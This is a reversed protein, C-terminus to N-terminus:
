ETARAPPTIWRCRLTVTAEDENEDSNELTPTSIQAKRILYQKDQQNNLRPVDLRGGGMKRRGSQHGSDEGHNGILVVGVDGQLLLELQERQGDFLLSLEIEDPRITLLELGHVLSSLNHLYQMVEKSTEISNVQTVKLKVPLARSRQNANSDTPKVILEDFQALWAWVAKVVEGRHQGETQQTWWKHGDWFHWDGYWSSGLLHKRISGVLVLDGMYPRALALIKQKGQENLRTWNIGTLTQREQADLRPFILDIGQRQAGRRLFDVWVIDHHEIHEEVLIEHGSEDRYNLWLLVLPQQQITPQASSTTPIPQALTTKTPLQENAATKTADQVGNVPDVSAAFLQDISRVKWRIHLYLDTTPENEAAILATEEAVVPPQKANADANTKTKNRTKTKAQQAQQSVRTRTLYGYHAVYLEPQALAQKLEADQELKNADGRAKDLLVQRFAQAIAQQREAEEYSQVIVESLMCPDSHAHHGDDYSVPHAVPQPQQVSSHELASATLNAAVCRRTWFLLSLVAILAALVCSSVRAGSTKESRYCGSM